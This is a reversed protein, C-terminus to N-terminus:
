RRLLIMWIKMYYWSPYMLYTSPPPPALTKCIKWFFLEYGLLVYVKINWSGTIKESFIENGRGDFNTEEKLSVQLLIEPYLECYYKFKLDSIFNVNVIISLFYYEFLNELFGKINKGYWLEKVVNFELTKLFIMMLEEFIM